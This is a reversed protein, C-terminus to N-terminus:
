ILSSPFSRSITASTTAAFGWDTVSKFFPFSRAWPNKTPNIIFDVLPFALGFSTLLSIRSSIPKHGKLQPFVLHKYATKIRLWPESRGRLPPSYMVLDAERPGENNQLRSTNRQSGIQIGHSDMKECPTDKAQRAVQLFHSAGIKRQM